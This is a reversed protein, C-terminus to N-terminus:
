AQIKYNRMMGMDEHELNHCHYLYLGEFDEFKLLVKVKEGPFVLVTDHWGSDLLGERLSSWREADAASITREIVQFQLGHIHMPHPLQMSGMMGRGLGTRNEFEWIELDGLKVIEERAVDEMEFTRGNLTWVMGPGFSLSFRRPSLRNAAKNQDHLLHDSLKGPLVAGSSLGEQINVQLISFSSEGGFSDFPLSILEKEEGPLDQSFDVWIDVRQAPALVLYDLDEASELLGGDTALVKIPRQDSWALKYIRSNSGNLLRLRYPNRSVSLQSDPRGNILIRSGLFGVMRDMMHGTGYILQNDLNFDRDQIVLPLDYAGTPLNLKEQDPDHIIFLGALGAYVQPGTRGHPHPHYWYTGARDSVSFDYIYSEGQGVVLRPHGDASPPVHLGHWHIITPEPLENKFHVRIRDGQNVHITPGLYSGQLEQIAAVPGSIVEGRYRWVTTKEGPFLEIQDPVATLSIELDLPIEEQFESSTGRSITPFQPLCGNLLLSVGGAGAIKLLDRRSFKGETM